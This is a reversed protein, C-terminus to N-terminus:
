DPYRPRAIFAIVPGDPRWTFLWYTGNDAPSLLFTDKAGTADFASPSGNIKYTNTVGSARDVSTIVHQAPCALLVTNGDATSAAAQPQCGGSSPPLLIRVGSASTSTEVVATTGLAPDGVIAEHSNSFFVLAGVQSSHYVAAPAATGHLAYVTGTGDAVLVAQADDSIALKSPANPLTVNTIDALLLPSNPLGTFAQVRNATQSYLVASRGSPSFAVLEPEAVAGPLAVLVPNSQMGAPMRLVTIAVPDATGRSALAYYHGPALYLQTVTSPLLIPAGLRAAGPIGLIPRLQSPMAGSVFGLSPGVFASGHGDTGSGSLQGFLLLPAAVVTTVSVRRLRCSYLM